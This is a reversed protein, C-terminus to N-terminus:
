IMLNCRNILRYGDVWYFVNNATTADYGATYTFEYFTATNVVDEGRCDGQQIFAAGWLYGRGGNPNTTNYQGVAAANYVGNMSSEILSPSSFAQDLSIRNIPALDLIKEDTCSNLFLGITSFAIIKIYNKM